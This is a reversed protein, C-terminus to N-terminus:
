GKNAKFAEAEPKAKAIEDKSMSAKRAPHAAHDGPRRHRRRRAAARPHPRRHHAVQLGPDPGQDARQPCLRRRAQYQGKASGQEAAREYWKVAEADDQPVGQGYDYISGVLLQM